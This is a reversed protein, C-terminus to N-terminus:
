ERVRVYQTDHRDFIRLFKNILNDKVTVDKKCRTKRFCYIEWEVCSEKRVKHLSPAGFFYLVFAHVDQLHGFLHNIKAWITCVECLLLFFYFKYNSLRLRWWTCPFAMMSHLTYPARISRISNMSWNNITNFTINHPGALLRADKMAASM